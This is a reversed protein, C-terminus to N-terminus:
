AQELTRGISELVTKVPCQPALGYFERAFSLFNKIEFVFLYVQDVVQRVDTDVEFLRSFHGMAKAWDLVQDESCGFADIVCKYKSNNKRWDRVISVVDELQTHPNGLSVERYLNGIFQEVKPLAEIVENMKGVAAPIEEFSSLGLAETLDKIVKAQSVFKQSTSELASIKSQYSGIIKQLKKEDLDYSRTEHSSWHRSHKGEEKFNNIERKLEQLQKSLTKKESTLSRLKHMYKESRRKARLFHSLLNELTEALSQMDPHLADEENLIIPPFGHSVLSSSISTWDIFLCSSAPADTPSSAEPIQYYDSIRRLESQIESSQLLFDRMLPSVDPPPQNTASYHDSDTKYDIPSEMLKFILPEFSLM